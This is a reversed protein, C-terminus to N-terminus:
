KNTDILSCFGCCDQSPNTNSCNNTNDDPVIIPRSCKFCSATKTTLHHLETELTRDHQPDYSLKWLGIQNEKCTYLCVPGRTNHSYRGSITAEDTKYNLASLIGLSRLRKAMDLIEQTNDYDGNYLCIVHDDNPHPPNTSVKAGFGLSRQTVEKEIMAWIQDIQSSPYFLLWKGVKDESDVRNYNPNQVWIWPTNCVASPRVSKESVKEM